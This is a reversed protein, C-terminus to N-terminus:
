KKFKDMGEPMRPQHYIYMCRSDVSARVSKHAVKEMIKALTLSENNKNNYMKRGEKVQRTKGYTEHKNYVIKKNYV